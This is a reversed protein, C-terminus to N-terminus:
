DCLWDVHCEIGNVRLVKAFAECYQQARELSQSDTQASIHYGSRFGKHGFHNQKLWRAFSSRADPLRVWSVGCAGESIAEPSGEIWMPTPTWSEAARTGHQHATEYLRKWYGSGKSGEVILESLEGREMTDADDPFVATVLVPPEGPRIIWPCKVMMTRGNRGIVPITVEYQIGYESKRTKSPLAKELGAVLQEGLFLWDDRTIGLLRRFLYAKDRGKGPSGDPNTHEHNLCYKPLKSVDAKGFEANGFAIEFTQKDGETQDLL